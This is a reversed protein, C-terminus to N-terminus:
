RPQPPNRAERSGRASLDTAAPFPGFFGTIKTLRGDDGLEGVDFGELTVNGEADM